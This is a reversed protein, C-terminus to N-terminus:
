PCHRLLRVLSSYIMSRPIVCYALQEALRAGGVVRAGALHDVGSWVETSVRCQVAVGVAVVTIWCLLDASTGIRSLLAPCM